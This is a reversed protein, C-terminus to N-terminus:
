LFAQVFAHFLLHADVLIFPHFNIHLSLYPLAPYFPYLITYAILVAVNSIIDKMGQYSKFISKVSSVLM